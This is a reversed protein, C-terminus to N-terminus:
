EIGYKEFLEKRNKHFLIFKALNRFYLWDPYVVHAGDITYRPKEDIERYCKQLLFYQPDSYIIPQTTGIANSPLCAVINKDPNVSSQYIVFIVGKEDKMTEVGLIKAPKLSNLFKVGKQNTMKFVDYISITQKEM